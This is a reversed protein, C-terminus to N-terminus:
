RQQRNGAKYAGSSQAKCFKIYDYSVTSRKRVRRRKTERIGLRKTKNDKLNQRSAERRGEKRGERGGEM